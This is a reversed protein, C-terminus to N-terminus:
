SFEKGKSQLAKRQVLIFSWVLNKMRKINEEGPGQGCNLMGEHFIGRMIKM